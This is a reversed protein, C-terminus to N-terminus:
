KIVEFQVPKGKENYGQITQISFPLCIILHIEGQAGFLQKDAESPQNHKGPHSHVTGVTNANYPLLGTQIIAHKKGFISPLIIIDEVVQKKKSGGLFAVFEDPFTNKAAQIVTKLVSNKIKWM